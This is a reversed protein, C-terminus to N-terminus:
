PCSEGASDPLFPSPVAEDMQMALGSLRPIQNIGGVDSDNVYDPIGKATNFHHGWRQHTGDWLYIARWSSPPLCKVWTEPSVNGGFPGGVAPNSGQYLPPKQGASVVGLTGGLNAANGFAAFFLSAIKLKMSGM